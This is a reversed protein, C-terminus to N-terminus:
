GQVGWIIMNFQIFTQFFCKLEKGKKRHTMKPLLPNQIDAITRSDTKSLDIVSEGWKAVFVCTDPKRM